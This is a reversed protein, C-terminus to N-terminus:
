LRPAHAGCVQAVDAHFTLSTHLPKSVCLVTTSKNVGSHVRRFKELAFRVLRDREAMSEAEASVEQLVLGWNNLAQVCLWFFANVAYQLLFPM